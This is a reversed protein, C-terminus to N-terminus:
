VKNLKGGAAEVKKMASDSWAPVSITLKKKLEGGGLLKVDKEGSKIIGAGCLSELSVEAGDEFVNLRGVNVPTFKVQNPPTFGGLKPLQRFMSLGGGSFYAPLSGGSRSKQGKSGRGATKVLGSGHGRGVRKKKKGAGKGKPLEHLKM